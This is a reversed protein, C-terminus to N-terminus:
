SEPQESAAAAPLTAAAARAKDAAIRALRDAIQSELDRRQQRIQGRRVMLGVVRRIIFPLRLVGYAALCMFYVWVGLQLRAGPLARAVAAAGACLVTLALVSRIGFQFRAQEPATTM